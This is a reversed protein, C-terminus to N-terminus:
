KAKLPLSSGCYACTASQAGVWKVDNKRVPGGCQPCVDPLREIPHVAVPPAPRPQPPPPPEPWRPPPPPGQPDEPPEDFRPPGFPPILGSVLLSIGVLILIGPWWNGTLALFGLGILWIAANVGRRPGGM